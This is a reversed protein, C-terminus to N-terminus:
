CRATLDAETVEQDVEIEEEALGEPDEALVVVAEEAELVEEEVQGLGVLGQDIQFLHDQGLVVRQGLVEM